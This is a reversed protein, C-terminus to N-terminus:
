VESRETKYRRLQRQLDDIVMQLATEFSDARESAFLQKKPVALKTDVRCWQAQDNKEKRLVVVCKTIRSYLKELSGAKHLIMQQLTSNVQLRPSEVILQM